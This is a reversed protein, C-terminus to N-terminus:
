ERRPDVYVSIGDPGCQRRSGQPAYVRLANVSPVHGPLAVYALPRPFLVDVHPGSLAAGAAQRGARRPRAPM